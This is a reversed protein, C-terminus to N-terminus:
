EACRDCGEKFRAVITTEIVLEVLVMCGIEAVSGLFVAAEVILRVTEAIEAAAIEGFVMELNGVQGHIGNKRRSPYVAESKAALEPVVDDVARDHRRINREVTDAVPESGVNVDWLFRILAFEEFVM